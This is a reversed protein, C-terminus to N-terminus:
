KKLWDIQVAQERVKRYLEQQEEILAQEKNESKRSFVQPGQELLQRKWTNVQSASVGFEDAIQSVQKQERIAEIAVRFKYEKT